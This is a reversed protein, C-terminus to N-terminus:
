TFKMSYNHFINMKEAYMFLHGRYDSRGGTHAELRLLKSHIRDLNIHGSPHADAPNKAFSWLYIGKRPQRTSAEHTTVANFYSAKNALAVDWRHDGGLKLEALKMPEPAELGASITARYDFRNMHLFPSGNLGDNRSHRVDNSTLALRGLGDETPPPVYEAPNTSAALQAQTIPVVDFRLDSSSSTIYYRLPSLVGFVNSISELGATSLQVNMPSVGLFSGVINTLSATIGSSVPSLTYNVNNVSLRTGQIQGNTDYSVTATPGNPGVGMRSVYDTVALEEASNGVSQGTYILRTNIDLSANQPVPRTFIVARNTTSTFGLNSLANGFQYTNNISLVPTNFFTKKTGQNNWLGQVYSYASLLKQGFLYQYYSMNASNNTYAAYFFDYFHRPIWYNINAIKGRIGADIERNGINLSIDSSGFGTMTISVPDVNPSALVLFKSSTSPSALNDIIRWRGNIFFDQTLEDINYNALQNWTENLMTGLVNYTYAIANYVTTSYNGPPMVYVYQHNFVLSSSTLVSAARTDFTFQEIFDMPRQLAIQDFGNASTISSTFNIHEAIEAYSKLGSNSEISLVILARPISAGTETLGIEGDDYFSNITLIDDGTDEQELLVGRLKEGGILDGLAICAHNQRAKDVDSSPAMINYEVYSGHYLTVGKQSYASSSGPMYYVSGNLTHTHSFGGSGAFAEAQEQTKFLPYYGNVAIPYFDEPPPSISAVNSDPTIQKFDVISNDAALQLKYQGLLEGTPLRITITTDIPDTDQATFLPLIAFEGPTIIEKSKSGIRKANWDTIHAVISSYSVSTFASSTFDRNQITQRHSTRDGFLTRVGAEGYYPDDTTGSNLNRKLRNDDGIAWMLTKVAGKFPLQRSIRGSTDFPTGNAEGTFSQVTTALVPGSRAIKEAESRELMVTDLWLTIGFKDWELPSGNATEPIGVETETSNSPLVYALDEINRLQLRIRCEIRGGEARNLSLPSAGARSFWFLLPVFLVIPTMSMRSLEPITSRDVKFVSRESLAGPRQYLEDHMEQYTSFVRDVIKGDIEFFAETWMAYGLGWVFSPIGNERAGLAPVEVQLYVNNLIDGTAHPEITWELELSQTNSIEGAQDPTAPSTVFAFNNVASYALTWPDFTGEVSLARLAESHAGHYTALDVTPGRM